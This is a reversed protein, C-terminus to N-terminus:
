LRERVAAVVREPTIGFHSFLEDEAGSAGFGSMGVFGGDAGIYRDWGQRVAAEVAVRVTGEGLVAQRHLTDQQEFLEWCPMSVVATPVGEAQLLARAALAIAVESGTALISARRGGGEAEAVVYAGRRARNQSADGQESRVPPLPQRAFILCCPGSRHALAIEWCEAAEAADAPRLVLMNPIARLAALFEVPQHTPGNRGIGISDHSFVFSVPLGMMAALRLTPRM